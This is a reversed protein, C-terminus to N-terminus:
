DKWVLLLWILPLRVIQRGLSAMCIGGVVVHHGMSHPSLSLMIVPTPMLLRKISSPKGKLGKLDGPELGPGTQPMLNRFYFLVKGFSDAASSQLCRSLESCLMVELGHVSSRWPPVKPTSIHGWLSSCAGALHLPSLGSLLTSSSSLPLSPVPGYTSLPM